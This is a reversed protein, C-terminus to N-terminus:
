KAANQLNINADNIKDPPFGLTSMFHKITLLELKQPDAVPFPSTEFVYGPVKRPDEIIAIASVYRRGELGYNRVLVIQNALTYIPNKSTFFAYRNSLFGTMEKYDFDKTFDPLGFYKIAKRGIRTYLSPITVEGMQTPHMVVINGPLQLHNQHIVVELNELIQFYGNDLMGQNSEDAILSNRIDVIKDEVIEGEMVRDDTIEYSHLAEMISDRM